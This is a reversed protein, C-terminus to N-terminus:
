LVRGGQVQLQSQPFVPRKGSTGAAELLFLLELGEVVSDEGIANDRLDLREEALDPRDEILSVVVSEPETPSSVLSVGRWVRM